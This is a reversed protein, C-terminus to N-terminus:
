SSTTLVNLHENRREVMLDITRVASRAGDDREPAPGFRRSTNWTLLKGASGPLESANRPRALIAPRGILNEEGWAQGSVVFDKNKSDGWEMVVGSRDEPGDLCTTCYAMRLWRRPTNYLPFNQRFVWTHTPYGYAIPHNPRDFTVRVHAGPTRTAAQQSAASSSGGGGAPRTGRRQVNQSIGHKIGRNVARRIFM